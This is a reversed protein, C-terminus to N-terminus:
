HSKAHAEIFIAIASLIVGGIFGVVINNFESNAAAWARLLGKPLIGLFSRDLLHWGKDLIQIVKVKFPGDEKIAETIIDWKHFM